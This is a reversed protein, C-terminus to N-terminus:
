VLDSTPLTLHTYSVPEPGVVTLDVRERAALEAISDPSALDVPYIPSIQAIGPNGPACIVTVGPDSVLRAM